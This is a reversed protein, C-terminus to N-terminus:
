DMLYKFTENFELDIIRKNIDKEYKFNISVKEYPLINDLINPWEIVIVTNKDSVIEDVEHKILDSSELRYFDLHHIEFKETNYIKKIMFTPSSVNDQSKTGAVLGSVFTTKGSGLDGILEIIEGGKLRSGIIKGLLLTDEVSNAVIQKNM